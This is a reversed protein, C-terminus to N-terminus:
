PCGCRTTPDLHSEVLRLVREFEDTKVTSRPIMFSGEKSVLLMLSPLQVYGLYHTWSSEVSVEDKSYALSRNSLTLKTPSDASLRWMLFPLRALARAYIIIGFFSWFVTSTLLWALFGHGQARALSSAEWSGVMVVTLFCFVLAYGLLRGPHRRLQWWALTRYESLSTQCTVTIESDDISDM